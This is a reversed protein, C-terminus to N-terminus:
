QNCGVGLMSISPCIVGSVAPAIVHVGAFVQDMTGGTYTYSASTGGTTYAAAGNPTGGIDSYVLTNNIGPSQGTGDNGYSAVTAGNADSTVTLSGTAATTSDSTKICTVTDTGTFSISSIYGEAITTWSSVLTKNGTAPNPLYFITTRSSGSTVTPGLTMSVGNWTASPSTIAANWEIVVVLCTASAGVTMGTTSVTAVESFYDDAGTGGGGITGGTMIADKAVAAWSPQCLCLLIAIVRKM